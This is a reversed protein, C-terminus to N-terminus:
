SSEKTLRDVYEQIMEVTVIKRVPVIRMNMQNIQTTVENIKYTTFEKGQKCLEIAEEIHQERKEDLALFHKYIANQKQAHTSLAKHVSM